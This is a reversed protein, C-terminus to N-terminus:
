QAADRQRSGSFRRADRQHPGRGAGLVRRTTSTRTRSTRVPVWLFECLPEWGADPAIVLLRDVPVERIVAANHEEYVRMAYERDAFRGAFFGDWIMQRHFATFVDLGPVIRRAEGVRADPPGNGFM